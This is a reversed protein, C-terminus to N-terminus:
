IDLYLTDEGAQRVIWRMPELVGWPEFSQGTGAVYGLASVPFFALNSFTGELLNIANEFGHKRLFRRCLDTRAMFLVSEEDMETSFPAQGTTSNTASAALIANAQVRIKPLGIERKYLDGKSIVVALPITSLKTTRKKRLKGFEEVFGSICREAGQPDEPDLVVIIAECYRFQQQQEHVDLESFSEGAVDYVAFQFPTKGRRNLIVSYMNANMDNTAETYGSQYWDELEDFANAPFLTFSVDPKNRIQELFLHWFATLYTTKGVSMSGVLQVGFQKAGGHALSTRCHPCVSKLKSRGNFVTTPLRQGCSCERHFTGYPGPTLRTHEAGCKPCVFAPIVSRRKCNPCRATISRLLLFFRDALWLASFLLFFLFMGILIVISLICSYVCVFVTGFIYVFAYVSIIFITHFFVMFGTVSGASIIDDIFKQQNSFADSVTISIQHFGPGFFYGRRGCVSDAHPDEYTTYPNLNELFSSFFSRTAVYLAFCGGCIVTLLGLAGAIVAAASVIPIVIYVIFLYALYIIIIAGILEGM